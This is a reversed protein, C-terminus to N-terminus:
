MNNNDKTADPNAIGPSRSFVITESRTHKGGYNNNTNIPLLMHTNEATSTLALVFDFGRSARGSSKLVYTKYMYYICIYERFLKAQLTRATNIFAGRNIRWGLSRVPMECVNGYVTSPSHHKLFMEYLSSFPSKKCHWKIFIYGGVRKSCGSCGSGGASAGLTKGSSEWLLEAAATLVRSLPVQHTTGWVCNTFHLFISSEFRSCYPAVKTIWGLLKRGSAEAEEEWIVFFM